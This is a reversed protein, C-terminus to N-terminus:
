RAVLIYVLCIVQVLLGDLEAEDIDLPDLGLHVDGVYECLRDAPLCEFCEDVLEGPMCGGILPCLGQLQDCGVLLRM